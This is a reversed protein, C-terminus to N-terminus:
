TGKGRRRLSLAPGRLGLPTFKGSSQRRERSSLLSDERHSLIQQTTDELLPRIKARQEGDLNMKKTLGALWHEVEVELATLISM